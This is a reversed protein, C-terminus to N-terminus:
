SVRRILTIGDRMPLLVQETRPDAAVLENFAHIAAATRNAAVLSRARQRRLRAVEGEVVPPTAAAMAAIGEESEPTVGGGAATDDWYQVVRGKFLVNDVVMLGGVRLLGGGICREYYDPYAKKDADVYVLDFPAEANAAMADMAELAPGVRLDISAMGSSGDRGAARSAFAEAATAAVAEDRELTVVVGGPPVAAAMSVAGYGTFTGVELVRSAATLSVLMALLAGQSRGSLMHARGPASADTVERVAVAAPDEAATFADAYADISAAWSSAHPLPLPPPAPAQRSGRVAATPRPPSPTVTAAAAAAAADARVADRCAISCAGAFTVACDECQVFVRSAFPRPCRVNSCDTQASWPTGCNICAALADDTITEGMRGDFVHLVGRFLSSAKGGDPKPDKGSPPVGGGSSNGGAGSGGTSSSPSRPSADGSSSSWPTNGGSFPGDGTAGAGGPSALAAMTAPVRVPRAANAVGGGDGGRGAEWDGRRGTVNDLEGARLARAYSVVGGHLRGVNEFGMVQGLYAGVKVCRIGGTCYTLVRRRRDVGDLRAALAAWTDPFAATDLPIAGDFRGVDSEYGNRCDLVIPPLAADGAASVAPDLAAAAAEPDDAAVSAAAASAAATAQGPAAALLEAHWQAPSVEEGSASWDLHLGEGEPHPASVAAPGYSFGDALVQHRARVHLAEFPVEEALSVVRDRNVFVGRLEAPVAYYARAAAETEDDEGVHAVPPAMAAAVDEGGCRAVAEAAAATAAVAEMVAVPAHGDGGEALAAVFAEVTQVPVAMQANVGESAVYVRGTAGYMGWVRSLTAALAGPDAVPMFRYFSLAEVATVGAGGAALAAALPAMAAPVGPPAAPLELGLYLDTGASDAAAVAAALQPVGGLRTGGPLIVVLGPRGGGDDTAPLLGKRAMSPAAALLSARIAELVPALSAAPRGGDDNPFLLSRPIDVRRRVLRRPLGLRRRLNPPITVRLTATTRVPRSSPTTGAASPAALGRLGGRWAAQSDPRARGGQDDSDGSGGGGSSGDGGPWLFPAPSQRALSASPPTPTAAAARRGRRCPLGPRPGGALSPLTRLLPLPRRPTLAASAVVAFASM